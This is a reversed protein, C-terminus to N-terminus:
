ATQTTGLRVNVYWTDFAALRGDSARYEWQKASNMKVEFGPKGYGAIPFDSQDADVVYWDPSNAHTFWVLGNSDAAMGRVNGFQNPARMHEAGYTPSSRTAVDYDYFTATGASALLTDGTVALGEIGGTLADGEAGFTQPDTLSIAPADSAYLTSGDPHVTSSKGDTSSSLTMTDTETPATPDSIDVASVGTTDDFVYVMDATPHLAVMSIETLSTDADTLTGDMSVGTFSTAGGGGGSDNEDATFTYTTGDDLVVTLDGTDEATPVGTVGPLNSAGEAFEYEELRRLRETLDTISLDTM